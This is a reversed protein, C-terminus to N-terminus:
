WYNELHINGDGRGRSWRFGRRELVEVMGLQEPYGAFEKFRRNPAGVMAPNGCLFVHTRQPDLEIDADREFAGTQFYHQLYRKGVYGPLAPNLNEPERTSMTLYRYNAFRRELERHEALYGLDRNCRVCTVTVVPSRHGRAMLEAIMANHPAEGTGTAVLVVQDDDHIKSLTYKGYFRTSCFLRAGTEVAFLRPTLAPRHVRSPHVLTIYFELYDCANALVLEADDNLLSCTIAYARKILRPRTTAAPEGGTWDDDVGREWNGLGLVAYQGADFPWWPEDPRVRLIMLDEHVLRRDIVDASYQSERLQDLESHLVAATM